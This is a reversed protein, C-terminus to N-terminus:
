ISFHKFYKESITNKIDKGLYKGTERLFYSKKDLKQYINNFEKDRIRNADGRYITASNLDKTLNIIKERIFLIFM